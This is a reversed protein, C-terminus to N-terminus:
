RRLTEPFLHIDEVHPELAAGALCGNQSDFLIKGPRGVKIDLAAILMAAPELRGQEAGDAFTVGCGVAHGGGAAPREVLVPAGHGFALPIPDIGDVDRLPQSRLNNTEPHCGDVEAFIHDGALVQHLPDRLSVALQAVSEAEQQAVQIAKPGVPIGNGPLLHRRQVLIHQHARALEGFLHQAPILLKFEMANIVREIFEGHSLQALKIDIGDFVPNIGERRLIYGPTRGLSYQPRNGFRQNAQYRRQEAEGRVFDPM